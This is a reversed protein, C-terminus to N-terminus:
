RLDPCYLLAAHTSSPPPLPPATRRSAQLGNWHDLSAVLTRPRPGGSGHRHMREGLQAVALRLTVGGIGAWSFMDAVHCLLTLNPFLMLGPLKVSFHRRFAAGPHYTILHTPQRQIRREADNVRRRGVMTRVNGVHRCCRCCCCCGHVTVLGLM